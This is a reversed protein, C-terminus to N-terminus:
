VLLRRLLVALGAFLLIEGCLGLAAFLPRSRLRLALQALWYSADYFWDNCLIIGCLPIMLVILCVHALGSSLMVIFSLIVAIGGTITWLERPHPNWGLRFHAFLGFALCVALLRSLPWWDRETWVLGFAADGDSIGNM